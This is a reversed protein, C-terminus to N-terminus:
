CVGLPPLPLPLTYATTARNVFRLFKVSSFGAHGDFVAAYSFGDLDESQVIIVDDEMEERAGQLQTSGWKISSVGTFASPADIAIASCCTRGVVKVRFNNNKTTKNCGYNCYLRTLLFRQLQPSCLAMSSIQKFLLLAM